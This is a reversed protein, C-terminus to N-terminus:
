KKKNVVHELVCSLIKGKTVDMRFPHCLRVECHFKLSTMLVFFIICDDLNTNRDISNICTTIMDHITYIEPQHLARQLLKMLKYHQYKQDGLGQLTVMM